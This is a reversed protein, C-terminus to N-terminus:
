RCPKIHDVPLSTVFKALLLRDEMNDLLLFNNTKYRLYYEPNNKMTVHFFCYTDVMMRITEQKYNPNKEVYKLLNLRDQESLSALIEYAKELNHSYASVLISTLNRSKSSRNTIAYMKERYINM